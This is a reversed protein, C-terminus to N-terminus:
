KPTSYVPGYTVDHGAAEEGLGGLTLKGVEASDPDGLRPFSLSFKPERLKETALLVDM